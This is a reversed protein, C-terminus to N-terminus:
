ASARRLWGRLFKEQSKNNLAIKLYYEKSEERLNAIVKKGDISNLVTIMEANFGQQKVRYGMRYLVRKLLIAARSSGMNVSMDMLKIALDCDGIQHLNNKIWFDQHYIKCAEDWTLKAIQLQPYSRKCIGFKTVGGRDNRCNNYGGEFQSVHQMAKQFDPCTRHDLVPLTKKVSEGRSVSSIFPNVLKISALCLTISAFILSIWRQTAFVIM